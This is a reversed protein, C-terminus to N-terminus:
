STQMSLNYAKKDPWYVQGRLIGIEPELPSPRALCLVAESLEEFDDAM